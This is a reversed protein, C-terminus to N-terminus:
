DRLHTLICIRLIYKMKAKSTLIMHSHCKSFIPVETFIESLIQFKNVKCFLRLLLSGRLLKILNQYNMNSIM